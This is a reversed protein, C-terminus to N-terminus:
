DNMFAAMLIKLLPLMLFLCVLATLTLRMRAYCSTYFDPPLFRKDAVLMAAFLLAALALCFAMSGTLLGAACLVTGAISPIMAFIMQGSNGSSLAQKWHVGGLFSLIMGAYILLILLAHYAIYLDDALVAALSFAAFPLLGAYGLIIYLKQPKTDM